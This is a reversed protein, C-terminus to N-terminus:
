TPQSASSIRNFNFTGQGEWGNFGNSSNRLYSYGGFITARTQNESGAPRAGGFQAVLMSPLFVIISVLIGYKRM